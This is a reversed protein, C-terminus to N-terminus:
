PPKPFQFSHPVHLRGLYMSQQQYLPGFTSFIPLIKLWMANTANMFLGHFALCSLLPMHFRYFTHVNLWPQHISFWCCWSKSLTKDLQLSVFTHTSHGGDSNDKHHYSKSCLVDDLFYTHSISSLLLYLPSFQHLTKQKTCGICQHLTGVPILHLAFVQNQCCEEKSLINPLTQLSELMTHQNCIFFMKSTCFLLPCGCQKLSLLFIIEIKHQRSRCSSKWKPRMICSQLFYKPSISLYWEFYELLSNFFYGCM